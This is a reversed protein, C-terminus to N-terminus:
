MLHFCLDYHSLNVDLWIRALKGAVTKDRSIMERDFCDSRYSIAKIEDNGLEGRSPIWDWNAHSIKWCFGREFVIITDKAPTLWYFWATLIVSVILILFCLPRLWSPEHPPELGLFPQLIFIIVVLPLGALIVSESIPSTVAVIPELFKLFCFFPLAGQYRLTFYNRLARPQCRFLESGLQSNSAPVYNM